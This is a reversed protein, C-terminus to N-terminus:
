DPMKDIINDIHSNIANKAFLLAEKSSMNCANTGFTIGTLLTANMLKNFLPETLDNPQKAKELMPILDDFFGEQKQM